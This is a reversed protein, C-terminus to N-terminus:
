TPSGSRKGTPANKEQKQRPKPEPPPEIEDDLLRILAEAFSTAGEVSREDINNVTDSLRHSHPMRGHEDLCCLTISPIGMMTPVVGDTGHRLVCPAADFREAIQESLDVLHQDNWYLTVQGEARTFRLKGSGVADINIFVHQQRKIQSQRRKIWDRVGLMLGGSAATFAFCVDVNDAPRADFRRALELAAAVGSANDSAGPSPKAFAADVLALVALLLAVAVIFQLVTLLESDGATARAATLLLATAIAWFVLDLPGALHGLRGPLRGTFHSYLLGTRESDHHATVVVRVRANAIAGPYTVNRTRRPPLLMRVIHARGSLDLYMSAAAFLVILLGLPPIKTSVITGAVALAAHAAQAIDHDPRVRIEDVKPDRGLEKLERKLYDTTKRDADSGPLRPGFSVLEAITDILLM